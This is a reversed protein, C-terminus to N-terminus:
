LLFYLGYQMNNKTFQKRLYELSILVLGFPGISQIHSVFVLQLLTDQLTTRMKVTILPLVVILILFAIGHEIIMRFCNVSSM